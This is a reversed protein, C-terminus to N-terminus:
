KSDRKVGRGQSRKPWRDPEIKRQNKIYNNLNSLSINLATAIDELGEGAMFRKHLEDTDVDDIVRKRSRLFSETSRQQQEDTAKAVMTGVPRGTPVIPHKAIYALREEESLYYTRVEGHSM